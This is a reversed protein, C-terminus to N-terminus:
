RLFNKYNEYRSKMIKKSSVLEKVKCEKEGITKGDKELRFKLTGETSESFTIDMDLVKKPQHINLTRVFVDKIYIESVEEIWVERYIGGYVLYDVVNGFPPIEPRETSDLEVVLVNNKKNVVDTIDFSFRNYAGKYEGIFEDNLYVKSYVAAGEFHLIYRNDQLKKDDVCLVRSYWVNEHVAEDEIGSMKTEYAFPVTIKRTGQFSQYWKEREGVNADDFRFDWDGNLNEWNGRVFQPRPYDKIYCQMNGTEGFVKEM